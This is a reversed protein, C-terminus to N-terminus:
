SGAPTSGRRGAATTVRGTEIRVLLKKSPWSILFASSLTAMSQAAVLTMKLMRDRSATATGSHM